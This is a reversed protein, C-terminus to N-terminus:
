VWGGFFWSRHMTIDFGFGCLDGPTQHKTTIIQKLRMSHVIRMGNALDCEMSDLKLRSLMM